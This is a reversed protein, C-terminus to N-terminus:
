NARQDANSIVAFYRSFFVDPDVKVAVTDDGDGEIFSTAGNNPDLVVRGTKWQCIDPHFIVVAALPDHFTFRGKKKLWWDGTTKILAGLEGLDTMLRREVDEAQLTCPRTVDLGVFRHRPRPTKLVMGAATEDVLMNWEKQHKEPGFYKGGMTVIDKCLSPLEPDLAFLTGVNSLPGITLLVVEGANDRITRRLFDVATNEPREVQPGQLLQPRVFEHQQVLPQGVGKLLPERRGLHIPVDSRGCARLLLDAIAARKEVDGTVVAVGLLDCDPHLALYALALGDDPDTGIDTDVVVKTRRAQSM